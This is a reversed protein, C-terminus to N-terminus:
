CQACVEECCLFENHQQNPFFHKLQRLPNYTLPNGRRRNSLIVTSMPRTLFQTNNNNNNNNHVINTFNTILSSNAIILSYTLENLELLINLALHIGQNKSFEGSKQNKQAITARLVSVKSKLM